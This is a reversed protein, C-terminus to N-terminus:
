MKFHRHVRHRLQKPFQKLSMYTHIMEMREVYARKNSDAQTVISSVNAVVFGYFAGGLCMAVISVAREANSEPYIDGYGVTTM